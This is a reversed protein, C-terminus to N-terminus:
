PNLEKVFMLAFIYHPIILIDPMDCNKTKTKTQQPWQKFIYNKKKLPALVLDLEVEEM